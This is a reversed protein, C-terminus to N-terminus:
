YPAIFKLVIVSPMVVNLMFPEAKLAQKQCAAYLASLMFLHCQAYGVSLM